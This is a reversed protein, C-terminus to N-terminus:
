GRSTSNIPQRLGQPGQSRADRSARQAPVTSTTWNPNGLQPQDLSILGQRALGM